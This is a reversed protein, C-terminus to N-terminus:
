LREIGDRNTVGANRGESVLNYLGHCTPRATGHEIQKNAVIVPGDVNGRAIEGSCDGM